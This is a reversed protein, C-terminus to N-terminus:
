PSAFRVPIIRADHGKEPPRRALWQLGPCVEMGILVKPALDFVAHLTERAFKASKIVVGERIIAVGHFV